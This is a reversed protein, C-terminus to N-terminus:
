FRKTLRLYSFRKRLNGQTFDFGFFAGAEAFPPESDFVNEIGITLRMDRWFTESPASSGVDISGQLDVLAHPEIDHDSPRIQLVNFDDYRSIFRVAATASAAGQTWDIRGVVHWRPITGFISALAVRDTVGMGPVDVTTFKNM